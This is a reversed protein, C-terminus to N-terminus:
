SDKDLILTVPGDNCLSVQMDAGFRGGQVRGPYRAEWRTQLQEFLVKANAPSMANSFSPRAGKRLDAYLTFQSVLLIGGAVEEVNKAMFSSADDFIRLRMTKEIMWEGEVLSDDPAIAALVLLGPGIAGVLEGAIAVHASLVRQIVFRM